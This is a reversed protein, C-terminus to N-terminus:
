SVPPTAPPTAQPTGEPNELPPLSYQASWVADGNILYLTGTTEDVAIDQLNDFPSLVEADGTSFDIPLSLQAMSGGERDIAIVRGTGAEDVVAVYLYGTQPGGVIALPEEKNDFDISPVTFENRESGSVMQLVRGDELLVYISGDITLDVALDFKVRDGSLVWDVPAASDAEPDADFRYINLYDRELIYLSQGFAAVPGAPWAGQQNIEELAMSQWIAGDTNGAFFMSSGDTVVLITGDWAVGYLDGVTRGEVEQGRSLMLEMQATAPNLRYLDGNALFLGGVTQFAATDSGQLEEPLGGIRRVNELRIVNGVEDRILTMQLERAHIAEEPAGADSAQQLEEEVASLETEIRAPDTMEGLAVLQQDVEALLTVYETEDPLFRERQMWLTGVLAVVLLLSLIIVFPSRLFSSRPLANRWTERGGDLTISRYRSVGHAGPAGFQQKESPQKWMDRDSVPRGETIRLLREQFGHRQPIGAGAPTTEEIVVTETLAEEAEDHEPEAKRPLVSALTARTHRWQERANRGIDGFTAIDAGTASPPFGIVAVAASADQNGLIQGQITDLVREPDRGSFRRIALDDRAIDLGTSALEDATNSDCLVLTDGAMIETRVMLPATWSAFGLPEPAPAPDPAEAWHPLRSELEPVAYVIGDQVLISQGPPVWAVTATHGEFVIATAGIQLRGQGARPRGEGWVLQNAVNFAHALATDPAQRPHARLEQLILERTQRALEHGEGSSTLSETMVAYGRRHASPAVAMDVTIRERVDFPVGGSVAFAVATPAPLTM